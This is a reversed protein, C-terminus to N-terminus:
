TILILIATISVKTVQVHIYYSNLLLLGLTGSCYFTNYILDPKTLVKTIPIVRTTNLKYGLTFQQYNIWCRFISKGVFFDAGLEELNLEVQGPAHAGDILVSVNHKHCLSVLESVPLLLASSSTIYDIIALKIGSNEQLVKSYHEVVDDAYFEATGHFDVTPYTINLVLLKAKNSQCVERAAMHIAGYTQNTVLIADGEDFDLSRLVTNIGFTTNPVFVTNEFKAGIFEAVTKLAQEWLPELQYRFFM